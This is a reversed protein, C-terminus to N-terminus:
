CGKPWISRMEAYLIDDHIIGYLSLGAYSLAIVGLLTAHRSNRFSRGPWLFGLSFVLGGFFAIFLVLYRIRTAIRSKREISRLARQAEPYGHDAAKRYWRRADTYDQPLGQGYYYMYGLNYEAEANGQYAAKRYWLIAETYDQPVGKGQHYMFGLNLQALADGQEAAKRYWRAAEAYDQPVGKGDYYMSGLAGQAQAHGQDAAKRSWRLAEAYNQPMGKGYYYMSALDFQAKVDGKEARARVLSAAEVLKKRETSKTQTGVLPNSRRMDCGRM